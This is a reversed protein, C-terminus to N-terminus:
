FGLWKKWFPDDMAIGREELERQLIKTRAVFGIMHTATSALFGIIFWTIKVFLFDRSTIEPTNAVILGHALLNTYLPLQTQCPHPRATLNDLQTIIVM